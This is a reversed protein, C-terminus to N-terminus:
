RPGPAAPPVGPINTKRAPLQELAPVSEILPGLANALRALARGVVLGTQAPDFTKYLPKQCTPDAFAGVDAIEVEGIPLCRLQGTEDEVFRCHAREQTDFIGLM